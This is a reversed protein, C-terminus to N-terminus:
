SNTTMHPWIEIAKTLLDKARSQIESAGWQDQKLIWRNLEVHTKELKSKKDSFPLNGLEPNYGTLTLNGFTNLWTNHIETAEAGLDDAWQQNLTQPLVHEITTTSLSVSEKHGFSAELRCLIFRTTKRGYQPQNILLGSLFALSITLFAM